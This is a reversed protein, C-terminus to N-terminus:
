LSNYRVSSSSLSVGPGMQEDDLWRSLTRPLLEKILNLSPKESEESILNGFLWMIEVM